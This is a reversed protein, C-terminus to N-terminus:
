TAVVKLNYGEKALENYTKEQETENKCNIVVAHQEQYTGESYPQEDNQLKDIDEQSLGALTQDLGAKKMEDLIEQLIDRQMEALEALKNDAVLYAREDTESSFMQYDVPVKDLNLVKAAEIRAHGAVVFGTLESVIVPHRWGMHRINKALLAIQKDPHSNPNQPHPRLDEVAVMKTHKCHVTPTDKQEEKHKPM